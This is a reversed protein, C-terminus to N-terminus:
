IFGCKQEISLRSTFFGEEPDPKIEVEDVEGEETTFQKSHSSETASWQAVSSLHMSFNKTPGLDIIAEPYGGGVVKVPLEM